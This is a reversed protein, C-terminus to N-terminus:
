LTELHVDIVGRISAVSEFVNTIKEVRDVICLLRAERTGSDDQRTKIRKIKVKAVDIQSVIDDLSVETLYIISIALEKERLTRPGTRKLVFPIGEVSLVLILMGVVADVYFGAGVAIGLGASAWVIAATTLGSVVENNRRLIVGAGLFGIGSVIQATVRMPDLRLDGGFSNFYQSSDIGVITLLCSTTSIVLCTKLGLPKRKVERELGLVLGLLASIVLKIIDGHVM